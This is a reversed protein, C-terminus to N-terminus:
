RKMYKAKQAPTLREIAYRLTTRPMERAHADLFRTLLTEDVRKGVERLMWGVAKHILDHEDHLLVRALELTTSADGNKIFHFAGVIAVRRCWLDESRALEFLLKRPREVLHRGVVFEASADVLDWNNVRGARVNRLYLEFIERQGREDARPYQEGLLVVAALRHEHIASDLLTQVEPLPLERYSRCVRRLDPMRVGIFVDGEGYEGPGCRFFRQAARAGEPSSEAALAAVVEAAKM